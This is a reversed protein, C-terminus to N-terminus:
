VECIFYNNVRNDFDVCDLAWLVFDVCDCYSQVVTGKYSQNMIEIDTYRVVYM